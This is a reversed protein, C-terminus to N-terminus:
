HARYVELGQGKEGTINGRHKFLVDLFDEGGADVVHGHFGRQVASALQGFPEAILHQELAFVQLRHERELNTARVVLQRLQARFLQRTAHDGSRRAIVRLAQRQRRLRQADFRGDHHGLGGRFDLDFAHTGSASFDHQM